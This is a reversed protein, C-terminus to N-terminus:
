EEGEDESPITPDTTEPPMTAPPDTPVETPPETEDPETEDPETEDPETEEPETTEPETTEPETTEPETEEPETEEPETPEGTMPLIEEKTEGCKTCTYLIYGDETETADVHETEEFNHELPQYGGNIWVGCYSSLSGYGQGTADYGGIDKGYALTFRLYITTNSSLKYDSLGRGPYVSGNISYMWGSGMTYDYEGLSDRDSNGSLQIGDRLIMSWLKEPVAAGRCMDGRSISRLYFGITASGDYVADYGYEELFRIVVGAATDGQVIEYTATDIIGLGVTTADLVLRVEGLYDGESVTHYNITYVKMTSNGKGDWARVKVTYEAYDGVNPPEFHLEYEPRADGTQKPVLEGNLWVEIQNSYIPQGDPNTRASVWFVFDQTEMVGDFGDLNTIISPPYDGVEPNDEDAKESEYSIQYRVYSLNEGNEKLYLTITNTENLVLAAEYNIGDASTLVQGNAPTESNNLVVKVSLTEGEGTPYAYFNLVGDPLETRTVQMSRLDTVIKPSTDEGDGPTDGGEGDGDGDDGAPGDGDEDSDSNGGEDDGPETEGVDDDPGPEPDGSDDTPQTPDPDNNPETQEPDTPAETPETTEEPETPPQTPETTEEPETPPQTPETTEEPETPPQTPETTEEPPETAESTEEPPTTEDQNGQDNGALEGGGNLAEPVLQDADTGIPNEPQAYGAGALVSWLGILMAIVLVISIIGLLGDHRRM